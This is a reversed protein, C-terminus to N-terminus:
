RKNADDDDDIPQMACLFVLKALQAERDKADAEIERPRPRVECYTLRISQIKTDWNINCCTTCSLTEKFKWLAFQSRTPTSM